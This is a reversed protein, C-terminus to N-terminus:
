ERTAVATVPLPAPPPTHPPEPPPVLRDVLEVAALSTLGLYPPRLLRGPHSM